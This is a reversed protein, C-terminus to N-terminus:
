KAGMNRINWGQYGEGRPSWCIPIDDNGTESTWYDGMSDPNTGGFTVPAELEVAEVRGDDHYAELPQSWDIKM